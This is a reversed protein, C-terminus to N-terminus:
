ERGTREHPLDFTARHEGGAGGSEDLVIRAPLPEIADIMMEAIADALETEAVGSSPYARLIRRAEEIPVLSTGKQRAAAATLSADTLILERDVPAARGM